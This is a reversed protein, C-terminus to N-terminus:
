RRKCGEAQYAKHSDNVGTFCLVCLLFILYGLSGVTQEGSFASSGTPLLMAEPGPTCRKGLM